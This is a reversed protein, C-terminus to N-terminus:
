RVRKDVVDLSTYGRHMHMGKYEVLIGTLNLMPQRCSCVISLDVRSPSPTEGEASPKFESLRGKNRKIAMVHSLQEITFGNPEYLTGNSDSMTVPVGGLHLLKEVAFQAVNGSGSVIVRKGEISTDKRAQVTGSREAAM